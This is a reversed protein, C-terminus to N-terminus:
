LGVSELDYIIDKYVPMYKHILGTCIILELEIFAELPKRQIVASCKLILATKSKTTFSTTSVLITAISYYVNSLQGLM